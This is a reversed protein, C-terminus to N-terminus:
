ICTHVCRGINYTYIYDINYIMRNMNFLIWVLYIYTYNVIWVYWKQFDNARQAFSADKFTILVMKEIVNRCKPNETLCERWIITCCQMANCEIWWLVALLKCCHSTYESECVCVCVMCEWRYLVFVVFILDYFRSIFHMSKPQSVSCDQRSGNLLLGRCHTSMESLCILVRLQQSICFCLSFTKREGGVRIFSKNEMWIIEYEWRKLRPIHQM